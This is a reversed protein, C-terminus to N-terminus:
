RGVVVLKRLFFTQPRPGKAKIRIFRAPTRLEFSCTGDKSSFSGAHIWRSGDKSTEAMGSTLLMGGQGNGSYISVRGKVPSPLEVKWWDDKSFPSAPSYWTADLGDAAREPGHDGDSGPVSASCKAGVMSTAGAQTRQGHRALPKVAGKLSKSFMWAWVAKERWAKTWADHGGSPFTGVRFDGGANNVLKAYEVIGDTDLGGRSYDGENHFHWWNGPAAKSFYEPLPPLAAIPVAAAFVGPFHQALAYVGNGGYSFGTLYIRGMDVKPKKQMRCISMIFDYIALQAVSPKGPMGGLLTKTSEPPSVALLYCPYSGQFGASTVIDFIARQRFQRAVSGLEGNGPIYVVMPLPNMGVPKPTFLLAQVANTPNCNEYARLSYLAMEANAEASVALPRVNTMPPKMHSAAFATVQLLAVSLLPMAACIRIM